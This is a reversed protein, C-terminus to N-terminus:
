GGAGPKQLQEDLERITVQFDRIHGATIWYGTFGIIGTLVLFGMGYAPGMIVLLAVSLVVGGAIVFKMRAQLARSKRLYGVVRERRAVARAAAEDTQNASEAMDTVM